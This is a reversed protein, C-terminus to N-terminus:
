SATPHLRVRYGQRIAALTSRPTLVRPGAIAPVRVPAGYGEPTWPLLQGERVLYARGGDAVMAGDPLGDLPELNTPRRRDADLREAHLVADLRDASVPGEDVGRGAIWHRRFELYRDRQCEACPRHGAALATAEDLFFLETYRGPAMVPRRRGKFQLVCIIWRRGVHPRRIRGGADHLCGRNGMLTGRASTAVLEGFPTVRNQRPV